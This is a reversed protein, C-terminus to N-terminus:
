FLRLQATPARFHAVSLSPSSTSLSAKRCAIDFLARIQEAFIGEGRMRTGFRGDNLQGGRMARLRNLVKDKREPRCDTLWQEFLAQVGHPLRVPQMGAFRAGADAAAQVITPIEEDTLGPIVPAVNVGVPIGAESLARIAELRKGPRSARPEMTRALESDLTTVSVVVTVADFRALAALLDIDRTVLHNKTILAVPNRFELMVELCARTLGLKRETPQYADTAGSLAITQPRWGPKSLADRLLRPAQEKVLIKTEFDLGASFGLYEHTPRAYCYICGHECGRYPNLDASFGVDPSDNYAIITKTHDALLETSLSPADEEPEWAPATREQSEFRNKPNNSAGRGRPRPRSPQRM